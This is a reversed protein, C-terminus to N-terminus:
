KPIYKALKDLSIIKLTSDTDMKVIGDDQDINILSGTSSKGMGNLIKVKDQKQPTVLQIVNIPFDVERGQKYLYVSCMNGEITRTAGVQNQYQADQYTGSIIVEVDTTIGSDDYAAGPTLPNINGPSDYPNSPTLPSISGGMPSPAAYDSHYTRSGPTFPNTYSGHPSDVRFTGPTAPNEYNAGPTAPNTYTGAPSPTDYSATYDFDDTRAPTAASSPDWASGGHSPTRSPDHSPTMYGYSPTRGGDGHQPTHSGFLPTRGSAVGHMPTMSGVMPTQAGGFRPTVGWQSTMGTRHQGPTVEAIRSIDVSITNCTTHLEVRATTETADRVIGIYGKYPGRTIRITKGILQHEKSGRGRGRGRGGGGGGGRMGGGAAGPGGHPRPSQPVFGTGTAAIGAGGALEVHRAKSVILGGNEVMNRSQIFVSGRYVHKIEGQKGTNPGDVVKVIDRASISNQNMDLAVARNNRKQVMHQPVHQLKGHQNLVKFAEKELRVIVGVMQSDLTVLDGWQFQGTSDVGTSTESCLQLDHPRVKLEYLTLDSFIIAINNEIRVILGTDGEYRGAIVKVHDGMKFFKKLERSPFELPDKLDDHKPMITIVDGEVNIVKGQLHMLQGERVEVIDGPALTPAAKSSDGSAVNLEVEDPTAEFKELEGLTPKVGEYLIASMVFNKYLFGNRYRNGEFMLYDGDYTIEGGIGRIAEADFLKQPPRRRTKRLENPDQSRLHGRKRNYDVRPITQLVAQNRSSDIYDVRAIDDKFMGRKIRVWSGGKIGSVERVVKLVDVMEKIPVMLQQWKGMALNGINEIAQKVHTQKYAEIYVYGKLGEVAVASKIQLPNDTHMLTIYKRMLLMVTEKETGIRCKVTWLNPDKVGPLFKQQVIADSQQDDNEDYSKDHSDAYKRKLYEGITDEDQETLMQKMDFQRHGGIGESREHYSTDVLERPPAGTEWEDEDEEDNSDEEAEEIVFDSRPRKAPRGGGHREVEDDVEDDDEEDEEEEEDGDEEDDEEEDGEPLEDESGDSSNFPSDDSDSM